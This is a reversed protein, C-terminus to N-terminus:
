MSCLIHLVFLLILSFEPIFCGAIADKSENEYLIEAGNIVYFTECFFNLSGTKRFHFCNNGRFYYSLFIERCKANIFNILSIVSFRFSRLSAILFRLVRPPETRTRFGDPLDLGDCGKRLDDKPTKGPAIPM